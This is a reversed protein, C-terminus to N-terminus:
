PATSSEDNLELHIDIDLHEAAEEIHEQLRALKPDAPLDIDITAAFLPIGAMPASQVESNLEQININLAALSASIEHVIGPRDNGLIKLRAAGRGSAPIESSSSREAVVTLGADALSALDHLLPEVNNDDIAVSVIGAFKGAMQALRSELWNGRHEAVKESIREVLGAKDDGVFTFVIKQM